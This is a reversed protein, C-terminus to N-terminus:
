SKSYSFINRCYINDFSIFIILITVSSDRFFNFFASLVASLVPRARGNHRAYNKFRPEGERDRSHM